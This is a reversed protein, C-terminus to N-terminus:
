YLVAEIKDWDAPRWVCTEVGPVGQLVDLWAQQDQDPKRGRQSKLEAFILRHDKVLVLDPFGRSGQLPTRWGKETRAPRFHTWRWGRLTAYEVVTDLFQSETILNDAKLPLNM